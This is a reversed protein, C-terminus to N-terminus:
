VVGCLEDIYNGFYVKEWFKERNTETNIGFANVINDFFRYCQDREKGSCTNYNTLYDNVVKTTSYEQAKEFREEETM